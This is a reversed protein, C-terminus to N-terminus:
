GCSRAPYHALYADIVQNPTLGRLASFRMTPKSLKALPEAEGSSKDGAITRGIADHIVRNATDASDAASKSLGPPVIYRPPKQKGLGIARFAGTAFKVRM